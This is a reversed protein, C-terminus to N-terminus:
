AQLKMFNEEIMDIIKRCIYLVLFYIFSFFIYNGIMWSELIGINWIDMEGKYYSLFVGYISLQLLPYNYLHSFPYCYIEMIVIFSLVVSGKVRFNKTFYVSNAQM